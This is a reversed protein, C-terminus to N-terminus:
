LVNRLRSRPATRTERRKGDVNKVSGGGPKHDILFLHVPLWFTKGMDQVMPTVWTRVAGTQGEVRM